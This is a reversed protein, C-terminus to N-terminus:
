KLFTDTDTGQLERLVPVLQWVSAATPGAAGLQQQQQGKRRFAKYNVNSSVSSGQLVGQQQQQDQQMPVILAATFIGEKIQVPDAGIAADGATADAQGGPQQQQQQQQVQEQQQQVLQQGNGAADSDGAADPTDVVADDDDGHGILAVAAAVKRRKRGGPAAAAAAARPQVAPEATAALEEAEFVAASRKSARTSNPTSQKLQLLLRGKGAPSKTDRAKAAPSKTKAAPSKAKAAAPSKATKAALSAAGAPPLNLLCPALAAPLSPHEHLPWFCM